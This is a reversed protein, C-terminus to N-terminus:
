GLAIRDFYVNLDPLVHSGDRNDGWAVLFEEGAAALGNYLGMYCGGLWNRNPNTRPPEFSVDSVQFNDGFSAGGDDSTAAFLAIQWNPPVPGSVRRDLWTAAILGKDDVAIQPQFQDTENEEDNIITTPFRDIIGTGPAERTNEWTTGDDTSYFFAVDSEDLVTPQIGDQDHPAVVYIRGRYPNYDPSAKEFSGSTDVALSPLNAPIRIDGNLVWRATGLAEPEQPVCAYNEHGLANTMAIATPSSFSAGGDYSRAFWLRTRSPVDVWVIYIEGGPGVAVQTGIGQTARGFSAEPQSVRIPDSFARGGDTSRSFLVVLSGDPSFETWTLYVSGEHPSDGSRDVAIWPKDQLADPDRNGSSRVVPDWNKGGDMSRAVGIECCLPRGILTAYYVIDDVGAAVVPNGFLNWGAPPDITGADTWTQSDDFWHGYGSLSLGTPPAQGDARASAWNQALKECEGGDVWATVVSDDTRAVSVETQTNCTPSSGAGLAGTEEDGPRNIRIDSGGHPLSNSEEIPSFVEQSSRSIEVLGNQLLLGTEASGSLFARMPSRILWQKTASFAYGEQAASVPLTATLVAWLSVLSLLTRTRAPRTQIGSGSAPASM